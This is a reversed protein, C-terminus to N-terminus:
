SQFTVIGTVSWISVSVWVHRMDTKLERQKGYSLMQISSFSCTGPKFFIATQINLLFVFDNCCYTKTAAETYKLHM